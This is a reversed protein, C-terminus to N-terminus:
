IHIHDASPKSTFGHRTSVGFPVVWYIAISRKENSVFLNWTNKTIMTWHASWVLRNEWNKPNPKKWSSIYNFTWLQPPKPWTHRALQPTPAAVAFLGCCKSSESVFLGLSHVETTTRKKHREVCTKHFSKMLLSTTQLNAFINQLIKIHQFSSVHICVGAPFISYQLIGIQPIGGTCRKSRRQARPHKYAM